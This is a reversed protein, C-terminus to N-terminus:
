KQQVKKQRSGRKKRYQVDKESSASLKEKEIIEKSLSEFEDNFGYLKLEELQEKEPLKRIDALKKERMEALHQEAREEIKIEEESKSSSQTEGVVPKLVESGFRNPSKRGVLFAM